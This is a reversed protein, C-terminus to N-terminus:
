VRAYSQLQLDADSTFICEHVIGKKGGEKMNLSILEARYRPEAHSSNLLRLPAASSFLPKLSVQENKGGLWM